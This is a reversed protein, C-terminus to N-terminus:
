LHRIADIPKFRNVRIIPYVATLLNLLLMIGMGEFITTFSFRAPIVPEVIGFQGYADALEEFVMPHLEYYHILWGGGIGGLVVSIGAIIATELMLITFVQLPTTGIARMIGIERTRAYITLLGYIMIVFLIVVLFLSMTIGDSVADYELSEILGSLYTHWDVM